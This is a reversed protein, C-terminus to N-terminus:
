ILPSCSRQENERGIFAAAVKEVFDVWFPRKDTLWRGWNRNPSDIFM